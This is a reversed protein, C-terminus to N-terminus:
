TQIEIAFNALNFLTCQHTKETVPKKGMKMISQPPLKRLRRDVLDTDVPFKNLM